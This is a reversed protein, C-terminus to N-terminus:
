LHRGVTPETCQRGLLTVLIAATSCAVRSHWCGYVAGEAARLQRRREQVRAAGPLHHCLDDRARHAPFLCAADRRLLRLPLQLLLLPLAPLLAAGGQEGLM